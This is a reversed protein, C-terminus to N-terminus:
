DPSDAPPHERALREQEQIYESRENLERSVREAFEERDDGHGPVAPDHAMGDTPQHSSPKESVQYREQKARRNEPM